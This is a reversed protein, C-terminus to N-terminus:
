GADCLFAPWIFSKMWNELDARHVSYPLAAMFSFFPRCFFCVGFLEKQLLSGDLAPSSLSLEELCYSEALSCMEVM